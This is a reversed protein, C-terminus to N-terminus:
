FHDERGQTDTAATAQAQGDYHDIPIVSTSQIMRFVRQLHTLLEIPDIWGFSVRREDPGAGAVGFRPRESLTNLDGKPDLELGCFPRRM